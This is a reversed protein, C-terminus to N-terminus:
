GVLTVVIKDGSTDADFYLDDLTIGGGYQGLSVPAGTKPLVLGVGVLTAKVMAKNGVYINTGTNGPAAQVVIQALQQTASGPGSSVGNIVISPLAPLLAPALQQPTGAATLAASAFIASM